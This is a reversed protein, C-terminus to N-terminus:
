KMVADALIANSVAKLTDAQIHINKDFQVCRLFYGIGLQRGLAWGLKRHGSLNIFVFKTTPQNVTACYILLCPSLDKRTVM